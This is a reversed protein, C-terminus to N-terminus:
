YREIPHIWFGCSDQGSGQSKVRVFCTRTIDYKQIYFYFGLNDLRRMIEDAIRLKGGDDDIFNEGRVFLLFDRWTEHLAYRLAAQMHYFFM